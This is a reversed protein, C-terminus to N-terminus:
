GIELERSPSSSKRGAYYRPRSATSTSREEDEYQPVIRLVERVKGDFTVIIHDPIPPPLTSFSQSDSESTPTIPASDM